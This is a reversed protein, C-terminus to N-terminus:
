WTPEVGAERALKAAREPETRILRGQETLNYDEGPKWPNKGAAGGGQNNKPAGGGKSPWYDQAYTAVFDAAFQEPGYAKKGDKDYAYKTSGDPEKAIIEGADDLFLVQRAEIRLLKAASAPVKEVQQMLADLVAKDIVEKTLRDQLTAVQATMAESNAKLSAVEAEHERVLAATKEQILEDVKGADLLKKDKAERAARMAAKVEELDGLDELAKAKGALDDKEKALRINNERFEDLKAKPVMGPIEGELQLTFVGDKETYLKQLEVPMAEWAARDVQFKM